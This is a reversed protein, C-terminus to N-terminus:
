RQPAKSPSQAPCPVGRHVRGPPRVRHTTPCWSTAGRDLEVQISILVKVTVPGSVCDLSGGRHDGEARNLPRQPWWNSLSLGLAKTSGARARTGTSAPTWDQQSRRSRIELDSRQRGPVSGGLYAAVWTCQQGPVSGGLYAAAWTRQWGTRAM